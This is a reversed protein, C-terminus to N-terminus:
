RLFLSLVVAFALLVVVMDMPFGRRDGNTRRHDPETAWCYPLVAASGIHGFV